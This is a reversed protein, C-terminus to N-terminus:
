EATEAEAAAAAAAAGASAPAFESIDVVAGTDVIDRLIAHGGRERREFFFHDIRAEFVHKSHLDLLRLRTGVRPVRVLKRTIPKSAYLLARKGLVPQDDGASADAGDDDDDDDHDEEQGLADVLNRKRYQRYLDDTKRPLAYRYGVADRFRIRRSFESRALRRQKRRAENKNSADLNNQPMRRRRRHQQQQQM